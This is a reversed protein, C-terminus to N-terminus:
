RAWWADALDSGGPELPPDDKGVPTSPPDRPQAEDDVRQEDADAGTPEDM